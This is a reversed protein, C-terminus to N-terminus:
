LYVCRTESIWPRAKKHVTKKQEDSSTEYLSLSLSFTSMIRVEVSVSQQRKLEDFIEKLLKEKVEDSYPTFIQKEIFWFFIHSRKKGENIM